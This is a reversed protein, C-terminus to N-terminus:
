KLNKLMTYKLIAKYITQIKEFVKADQKNKNNEKNESQALLGALFQTFESTIEPDHEVLLKHLAGENPAELLKQLLEYQPPPSSLQKLIEGIKNLKEIRTNDNKQHAQQLSENLVQIFIENIGALNEQLAEELNQEGLLTELLKEALKHETLLRQDIENTLDLLKSRLEMLKPKTEPTGQDIKDTLLQFFQYDLGQRTYSVLAGLRIDNPAGLLIELLKERTLNKGVTQLTKVAEQIENSQKQIERGYATDQLLSQQIAGMQRAIQEQGGALASEMLRSFIAFFEADVLDVEKDLITKLADPSTAALLKEILNVKGQQNKIMEPTIGDSGLIKEVLSQYTLFSQPRFIYAKRKEAPLKNVAQNILPGFIKEQENLPLGLEHPFYTLLLEKENDHYVIPTSLNGSYGCASCNAFNSVGGLLRKKSAPDATVDILQEIQVLIPQQCRPCKIQNKVM